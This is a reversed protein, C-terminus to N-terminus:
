NKMNENFCQRLEVLNFNILEFSFNL